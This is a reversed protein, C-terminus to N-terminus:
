DEKTEDVKRQKRKSPAAKKTSTKPKVKTESESTEKAVGLNISIKM